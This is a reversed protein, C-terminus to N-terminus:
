EIFLDRIESSPIGCEKRKGFWNYRNSAIFDYVKDRFYKPIIKFIIFLNFPFQLQKIIELVASSKLFIKKNQHLIVSDFNKDPIKYEAIIRKGTESQLQTFRFNRKVDNKIIFNVSTNCLNCYGDFLVIPNDM